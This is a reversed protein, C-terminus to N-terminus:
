CLMSGKEAFASIRPPDDTTPILFEFFDEDASLDTEGVIDLYVPPLANEVLVTVEAMLKEAEVMNQALNGINAQQQSRIFFSGLVVLLAAAVAAAGFAFSWSFGRSFFSLRDKGEPVSIRRQPAPCYSRARQGLRDLQQELQEKAARCQPCQALHARQSDSLDTEDIVAQLIDKEALHAGEPQNHNM